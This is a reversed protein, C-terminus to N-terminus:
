GAGDHSVAKRTPDLLLELTMMASHLETELHSHYTSNRPTATSNIQILIQNSEMGRM